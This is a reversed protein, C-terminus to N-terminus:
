SRAVEVAVLYLINPDGLQEVDPQCSSSSSSSIVDFLYTLEFLLFLNILLENFRPSEDTEAMIVENHDLDDLWTM